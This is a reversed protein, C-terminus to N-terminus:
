AKRKANQTKIIDVTGAAAEIKKVASESLQHAQVQYPEKVEGEGLIKVKTGPLIKKSDILGAITLKGDVIYRPLDKLNIRFIKFKRHHKFGRKKAIRRFYPMQGGEFRAPISGGSRAKQGKTGRGATGGGGASAGRGVRKRTKKQHDATIQHLQDM